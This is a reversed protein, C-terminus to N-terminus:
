RRCRAAWRTPSRPAARSPRSAATAPMATTACWSTARCRITPRTPSARRRLGDADRANGGNDKIDNDEVWVDRNAMVMVGTGPPVSAVINGAAAFNPHNNAIVKNRFLAHRIAARSRCTRCTSCWSAAPTTPPSTTTCTPTTATRSRSAPSMTNPGLQARHHEAVPRCLHRRGVRGERYVRDILVNKSNVPYVGYAGNTTKPGGTWEVRVNVFSIGDSGKSKIGDGKPNEVTLDRVVVNDSTILLGEGEGKQSTFDLVTKDPGAGKVVVGPVDLSLGDALVFRGAGLKVMDGTKADILATQLREQADAGAAVTITAASAGTAMLTAALLAAKLM